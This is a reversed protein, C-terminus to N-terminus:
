FPSLSIYNCLAEFLSAIRYPVIVEILRHAFFHPSFCDM